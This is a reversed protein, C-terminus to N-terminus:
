IAARLTSYVDLGQQRWTAIMTMIREMTTAGKERRLGGIIKRQVVMERIAREATNNTPEVEPYDICTFWQNMGNTVKTVFTKTRDYRTLRTLLQKLHKLMAKKHQQREELPPPKERLTQIQSFITKFGRYINQLSKNEQALQKIERLLHAWCRQVILFQYYANWGDCVVTGSFNEGLIEKPVDGGRTPRIVFVTENRTVFVWIWWKKGDVHIGTEDAHVIKATRVRALLEKYQPQLLAGVQETMNMVAVNTLDVGHHRQLANAVKRLPLRDDYKLLTVHTQVNNGFMGNPVDHRAAFRQKCNKCRYHAILHETVQLPQPDPIEEIIRREVRYPESLPTACQPCADERHEITETPEPQEREYRPHGEPAGLRGVPPKPPHKKKSLSPPTHANEYAQLRRLADAQQRELAVIREEQALIIRILDSKSLSRLEQKDM